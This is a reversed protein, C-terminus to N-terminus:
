RKGEFREVLKNPLAFAADANKQCGDYWGDAIKEEHLIKEDAV